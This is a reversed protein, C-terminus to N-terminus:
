IIKVSPREYIHDKIKEDVIRVRGDNSPYMKVIIGKPWVNRPLDSKM